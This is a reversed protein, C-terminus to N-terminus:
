QIDVYSAEAAYIYRIGEFCLACSNLGSIFPFGNHISATSICLLNLSGFTGSLICPLTTKTAAPFWIGTGCNVRSSIMESAGSEFSAQYTRM